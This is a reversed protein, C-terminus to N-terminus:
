VWLAETKREDRGRSEWKNQSPQKRGRSVRFFRSQKKWLFIHAAACACAPPRNCRCYFFAPSKVDSASFYRVRASICGFSGPLFVGGAAMEGINEVSDPKKLRYLLYKVKVVRISRKVLQHTKVSTSLLWSIFNLLSIWDIICCFTAM